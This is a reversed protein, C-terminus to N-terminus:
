TRYPNVLSGLLDALVQRVQREDCGMLVADELADQALAQLEALNDNLVKIKEVCSVPEGAPTRWVPFRDTKSQTM